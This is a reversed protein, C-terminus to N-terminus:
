ESKSNHMKELYCVAKIERFNLCCLEASVKAIELFGDCVAYSSINFDLCFQLTMNFLVDSTAGDDVATLIEDMAVDCAACLAASKSGRDAGWADSGMLFFDDLQLEASFVRLM